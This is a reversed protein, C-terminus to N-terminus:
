HRSPWTARVGVRCGSMLPIIWEGARALSTSFSSRAGQPGEPGPRDEWYGNGAYLKGDHGTLVRVETGGIFHGASDRSGAAFSLQFEDGNSASGPIDCASLAGCGGGFILTLLRWNLGRM